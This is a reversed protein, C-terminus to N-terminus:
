DFALSACKFESLGYARVPNLSKQWRKKLEDSLETHTPADRIIIKIDSLGGVHNDSSPFNRM